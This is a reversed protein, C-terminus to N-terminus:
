KKWNKCKYKLFEHHYLIHANLKVDLKCLNLQKTLNKQINTCVCNRIQTDNGTM